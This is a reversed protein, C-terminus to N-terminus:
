GKMRRQDRPSNRFRIQGHTIEQPREPFHGFLFCSANTKDRAHIESMDPPLKPVLFRDGGLMKLVLLPGFLNVGVSILDFSLPMTRALPEYVDTDAYFELRMEGRLVPLAVLLLAGLSALIYLGLRWTSRLITM